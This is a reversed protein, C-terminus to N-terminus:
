GSRRSATHAPITLSRAGRRRDLITLVIFPLYILSSWLIQEHWVDFHLLMAATALFIVSRAPVLCAPLLLWVFYWPYHPTVLIMLATAMICVERATAVVEAQPTPAPRRGFALFAGLGVLGIASAALWLRGAYDPLAVVHSLAWLWYIGAGSVLGEDRAYNPLFGLVGWGVEAYSLYLAAIGAAMALPMRWDWRRWVSPALVIPLLKVAAAAGLMLGTLAEQRRVHALIAVAVFGLAAADVHGNGAFEWVPLPNWAYILVRTRDLAALGLLRLTVGIVVLEFLVMTTKIALPTQSIYAVAHFIAQAMPPYITHAYDIRNIRFFVDEDRLAILAPDTPIYRYPSIGEIQVRGDWIYRYLDTSLLPPEPLVALRMLVAVGLVMWVANLAQPARLTMAVATLYILGAVCEFTIFLTLRADDDADFAGPRHVITGAITLLALLAGLGALKHRPVGIGLPSALTM